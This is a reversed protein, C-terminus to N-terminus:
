GGGREKETRERGKVKEFSNRNVSKSRGEEITRGSM